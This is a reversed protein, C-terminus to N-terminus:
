ASTNTKSSKAAAGALEEFPFLPRKRHRYKLDRVMDATTCGPTNARILTPCVAADAAVPAHVGKIVIVEFDAPNLGCSTMQGLSSPFARRTTLMITMGFDTEVISTPGMDFEVQGGHRAEKERYKGSNLSVVTVEARLPSAPSGEAKGGMRLELRNGIGAKRAEAESEPDALCAFVLHPAGMNQFIHLLVTSDAPAGGGMNDGMDFLGVPTASKLALAVAAEPGILNGRYNERKEFLWHGLRDALDRAQDPADNTVVIFSSGMEPVDAYPFGMVISASLVGPQSRVADLERIVSLMPEQRTGQAEINIAVAPFSAGMTLKVEKRLARVLLQAAELGRQRQDVHPNERYSIIADCASVMAESLNAHPDITAVIPVGPEVRRRLEKLWWGDLDARQGEAVAAGHPAALIGDLPGAKDLAALALRWLEDWAKEEIIGSPGAGFMVLPVAEFGVAKLGEFFGTVEHHASSYERRIDEGILFLDKRFDDLTTRVPNFTSSEHKICIIGVKM